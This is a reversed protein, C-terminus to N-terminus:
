NVDKSKQTMGNSDSTTLTVNESASEV